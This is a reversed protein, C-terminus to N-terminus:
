IEEEVIFPVSMVQRAPVRKFPPKCLLGPVYFSFHPQSSTDNSCSLDCTLQSVKLRLFSSYVLLSFKMSRVQTM